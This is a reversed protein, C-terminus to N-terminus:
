TRDRVGGAALIRVSNPGGGQVGRQLAGVSPPKKKKKKARRNRRAIGFVGDESACIAAGLSSGLACAATSCCISASRAVASALQLVVNWEM